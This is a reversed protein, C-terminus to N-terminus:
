AASNIKTEGGMLCKAPEEDGRVPCLAAAEGVAPIYAGCM